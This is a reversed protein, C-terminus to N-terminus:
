SSRARKRGKGEPPQQASPTDRAPAFPLLNRFEEPVRHEVEEAQKPTLRIPTSLPPNKDDRRLTTETRPAGDPQTTGDRCNAATDDEPLRLAGDYGSTSLLKDLADEPEKGNAGTGTGPTPVTSPGVTGEMEEDVKKPLIYSPVYSTPTGSPAAPGEENSQASDIETVLSELEPLKETVIKRVGQAEASLAVQGEGNLQASEIRAVLSKLETLKETMRKRVGQAEASLAVQDEEKSHASDIETILSKLVTLKETLIKRDAEQVGGSEVWTVLSKLQPLAETIIKSIGQAEALLAVQGEKGGQNKHRSAERRALRRTLRASRLVEGYSPQAGRDDAHLRIISHRATMTAPAKDKEQRESFPWRLTARTNAHLQTRQIRNTMTGDQRRNNSEEERSTVDSISSPYGFFQFRGFYANVKDIVGEEGHLRRYLRHENTRVPTGRRRWLRVNHSFDILVFAMLAHAFYEELGNILAILDQRKLHEIFRRQSRSVSLPYDKVHKEKLPSGKNRLKILQDKCYLVERTGETLGWYTWRRTWFNLQRVLYDINRDLTRMAKRPNGQRYAALFQDTYDKIGNISINAGDFGTLIFAPVIGENWHMFIHEVKADLEAIERRAAEIREAENMADETNPAIFDMLVSLEEIAFRADFVKSHISLARRRERPLLEAIPLTGQLESM